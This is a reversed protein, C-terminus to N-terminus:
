SGARLAQADRQAKEALQANRRACGEDAAAERSAYVDRGMLIFSGTPRGGSMQAEVVIQGRQWVPQGISGLFRYKPFCVYNGTWNGAQDKKESVQAWSKTSPFGWAQACAYLQEDDPERGALVPCTSRRCQDLSAQNSCSARLERRYEEIFAREALPLLQVLARCDPTGRNRKDVCSRYMQQYENCETKSSHACDFVFPKLEQARASLPGTEGAADSAPSPAAHTSSPLSEALDLPQTGPPCNKETYVLQGSEARCKVVQSQAPLASGACVFALILVAVSKM